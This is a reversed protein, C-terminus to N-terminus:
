EKWGVAEGCPVTLFSDPHGGWAKLASVFSEIRAQDALGCEIVRSRWKENLLSIYFGAIRKTSETTTVRTPIHISTYATSRAFGAENLLARFRKGINPDGGTKVWDELYVELCEKIIEEHPGSVILGEHITGRLGIVGGPKLVRRLEQLASAPQDLRQLVFHAFVADFSADPYPLEYVSQVEFEVNAISKERAQRKAVEIEDSSLDFGVVKGPAVVAALGLAINGPGCGCELLDMGSRLHPLFFEAEKNATRLKVMDRYAPNAGSHARTDRPASSVSQQSPSSM